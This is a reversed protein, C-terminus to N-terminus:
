FHLTGALQGAWHSTGQDPRPMVWAASVPAPNPERSTEGAVAASLPNPRRAWRRYYTGGLFALARAVLFSVLVVVVAWSLGAVGGIEFFVGILFLVVLVIALRVM